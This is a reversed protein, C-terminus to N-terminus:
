NQDTAPREALSHQFVAQEEEERYFNAIKV